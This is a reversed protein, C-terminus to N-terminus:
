LAEIASFDIGYIKSVDVSWGMDNTALRFIGAPNTYTIATAQAHSARLRPWVDVSVTTNVQVVKYLFTAVQLWDGVAFVGTGGQVPLTTTLATAGAGVQISGAATGATTRRVSDGLYFTGEQGNLSLLWAVWAGATADNMPPLSVKAQWLQGPWVYTQSQGTFPSRNIGVMTLPAFEISRFRGAVPLSVPYTIAM